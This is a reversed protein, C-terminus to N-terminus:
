LQVDKVSVSKTSIFCNANLSFDAFLHEPCVVFAKTNFVVRDFFGFAM